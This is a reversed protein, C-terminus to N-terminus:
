KNYPDVAISMLKSFDEDEDISCAKIGEPTIETMGDFSSCIGPKTSTIDACVRITCSGDNSFTTGFGLTKEGKKTEIRGDNKTGQFVSGQNISDPNGANIIVLYGVGVFIGIILVSILTNYEPNKFISM